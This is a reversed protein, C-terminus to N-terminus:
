PGAAEILGAELVQTLFEEIDADVGEPPADFRALVADRIDALSHEGDLREWIAAGVRNTTYIETTATDNFFLPV